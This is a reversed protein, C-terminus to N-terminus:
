LDSIPAPGWENEVPQGSKFGPFLLVPWVAFFGVVHVFMLINWWLARKGLDHWRQTFVTLLAYTFLLGISDKRRERSM